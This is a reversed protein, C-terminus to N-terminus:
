PPFLAFPKRSSPLPEDGAISAKPFRLVCNGGPGSRTQFRGHLQAAMHQVMALGSRSAALKSAEIGPGNDEVRLELADGFARFGVRLLGQNPPLGHKIANTLLENLILGLPVAQSSPLEHPESDIVLVFQRPSANQIATSLERILDDCRLTRSHGARHLIAQVHLIAELKRKVTELESRVEQNGTARGAAVVISLMMQTSNKVRHDYEGFRLELEELRRQLNSKDCVAPREWRVGFRRLREALTQPM